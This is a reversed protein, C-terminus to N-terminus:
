WCEYVDMAAGRSRVGRGPPTWPAAAHRPTADVRRYLSMAPSAMPRNETVASGSWYGSFLQYVIHVQCTASLLRFFFSYFIVFNRSHIKRSSKTEENLWDGEVCKGM